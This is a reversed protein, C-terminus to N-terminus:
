ITVVAVKEPKCANNSMGDHTESNHGNAEGLMMVIRLQMEQAM